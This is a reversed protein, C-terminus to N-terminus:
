EAHRDVAITEKRDSFDLTLVDILKLKRSNEKNSFVDGNGDFDCGANMNNKVM